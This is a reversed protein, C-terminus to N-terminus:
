CRKRIPIPATVEAGLYLMLLEKLIGISAVKMGDFPCERLLGKIIMFQIEEKQTGKVILTSLLKFALFRTSTSPSLASLTSLLQERM